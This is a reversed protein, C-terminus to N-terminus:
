KRHYPHNLKITASRYIQELLIILAFSHTLTMKSLSLIINSYSLIEDCFGDTGGIFFSVSNSRNSMITENFDISSFGKGKEDLLVILSHRKEEQIIQSLQKSSIKKCSFNSIVKKPIEIIRRKYIDALKEEFNFRYKDQYFVKIKM